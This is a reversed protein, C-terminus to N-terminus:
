SLHLLLKDHSVLYILVLWQVAEKGQSAALSALQYIVDFNNQAMAEKNFIADSLVVATAGQGIFDGISDTGFEHFHCIIKWYLYHFVRLSSCFNFIFLVCSFCFSIKVISKGYFKELLLSKQIQQLTELRKYPYRMFPLFSLFSVGLHNEQIEWKKM